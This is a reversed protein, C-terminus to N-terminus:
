HASLQHLQERLSSCSASAPESSSSSVPSAGGLHGGRLWVAWCEVRETQWFLLRAPYILASPPNKLDPLWVALCM